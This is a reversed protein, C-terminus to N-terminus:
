EFFSSKIQDILTQSVIYKVPKNQSIIYNTISACLLSKGTGSPGAFVIWGTPQQAFSIAEHYAKRFSSPDCFFDNVGLKINDFTAESLHGIESYKEIRIKTNTGWVNEQCICPETKINESLIWRTNQCIKCNDQQKDTESLIKSTNEKINNFDIKSFIKDLPEMGM